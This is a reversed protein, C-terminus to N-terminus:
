YCFEVFQTIINERKINCEMAIEIWTNINEEPYWSIWTEYDSLTNYKMYYLKICTLPDTKLSRLQEPNDGTINYLININYNDIPGITTLTDIDIIKIKHMTM